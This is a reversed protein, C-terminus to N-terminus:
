QNGQPQNTLNKLKMRYDARIERLEDITWKKPPHPGELAEVAELGIREIMGLRFAERKAGGPRNCSKRQAHINLEDFRLEPCAGIGMFHGADVSGGPRDPEMPKGCCICPLGADRARVYANCAAQAERVWQSRPKLAEQRTRTAKKAAKRNIAGLKKACRLSCVSAMPRAPEFEVACVRCRKM